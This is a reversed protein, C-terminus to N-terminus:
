NARYVFNPQVAEIREDQRHLNEIKALGPDEALAVLFVSRGLNLGLEQIRKIGFRGYVDTIVKVDTGTALTVLYEGPVRNESRSSATAERTTALSGPSHHGCAPGAGAVAVAVALLLRM